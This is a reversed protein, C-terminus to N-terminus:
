QTNYSKRYGCIYPYLNNTIYNNQQRQMLNEYIKSITRLVIAPRCTEKDFPDDKRFVPTVFALKLNDRFVDKTITENFLRHLVDVTADFSPKLIKPSM